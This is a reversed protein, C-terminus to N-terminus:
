SGLYHGSFSNRRVGDNVLTPSGSGSNEIVKIYVEDYQALRTTGFNSSCSGAASRIIGFRQNISGSQDFEASVTKTSTTCLSVDFRYVGDVPATYRGGSFNYPNDENLQVMNFRLVKNLPPDIEIVNHAYVAYSKVDSFLHCFVNLTHCLRIELPPLADPGHAPGSPSTVTFDCFFRTEECYQGPNGQWALM